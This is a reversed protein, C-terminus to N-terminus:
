AVGPGMLQAGRAHIARLLELGPDAKKREFHMHGGCGRFRRAEALTMATPLVDGGRQPVQMPLEYARCLSECLALCSMVQAMTFGAYRVLAGHIRERLIPRVVGKDPLTIASGRNILEIGVSYANAGHAQCHAGFRGADMMQWILGEADLVFHVSLKSKHMNRYLASPPNEAGTWHCVIATTTDRWRTAPFQMGSEHWTRVPAEVAVPQGRVVIASPYSV